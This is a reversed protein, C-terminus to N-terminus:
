LCLADLRHAAGTVTDVYYLAGSSASHGYLIGDEGFAIQEGFNANLPAYAACGSSTLEVKFSGPSASGFLVGSSDFAIDGFRLSATNGTIDCVKMNTSITLDANLSVKYLDDTREAVYYYDGNYFTGNAARGILVGVKSQTGSLNDTFLTSPISSSLSFSTFYFRGTEPDFANGNFNWNSGISNTKSSILDATCAITDIEYINTTPIQRLNETGLLIAAHTSISGAFLTIGFIVLSTTKTFRAKRFM